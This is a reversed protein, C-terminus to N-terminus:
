PITFAKGPINSAAASNGILFTAQSRHKEQESVNCEPCYLNEWMHQSKLVHRDTVVLQTRSWFVQRRIIHFIFLSALCCLLSDLNRFTCSVDNNLRRFCCERARLSFPRSNKNENNYFVIEEARIRQLHHFDILFLTTDIKCHDKATTIERWQYPTM